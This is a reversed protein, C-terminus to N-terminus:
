PAIRTAPESWGSQGNSGVAAVRFWYKTGSKLNEITTRSRTIVSDHKWSVESPPDESREIIYSRANSVKDWQLDVEGDRDGVSASLGSPAVLDSASRAEERVKMGANAIMAEDGGSASEVYNALRTM